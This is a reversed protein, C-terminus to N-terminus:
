KCQRWKLDNEVILDVLGIDKFRKKQNDRIKDPNGGKDSRFLDVDLVMIIFNILVSRSKLTISRLYYYEYVCETSM